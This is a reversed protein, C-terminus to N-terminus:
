SSPNGVQTGIATAINAFTVLTVRQTGPQSTAKLHQNEVALWEPGKREKEAQKEAVNCMKELFLCGRGDSKPPRHRLQIHPPQGKPQRFSQLDGKVDLLGQEELPQLVIENEGYHWLRAGAPGISGWSTPPCLFPFCKDGVAALALLRSSTETSDM